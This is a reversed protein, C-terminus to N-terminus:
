DEASTSELTDELEQVLIRAKEEIDDNKVSKLSKQSFLEDTINMAALIAVRLSSEFPVNADVEKMKSDVYEAVSEIYSSDAQGKVTYEKGYIGVKVLNEANEM